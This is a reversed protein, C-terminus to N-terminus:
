ALGLSGDPQRRLRGPPDSRALAIIRGRGAEFAAPALRLPAPRGARRHRGPQLPAAVPLGDQAAPLSPPSRTSRPATGAPLSSVPPSCSAQQRTAPARSSQLRREDVTDPPTAPRVTATAHGETQTVLYAVGHPSQLLAPRNSTQARLQPHVLGPEHLLQGSGVDWSGSRWSGM